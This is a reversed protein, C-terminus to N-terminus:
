RLPVPRVRGPGIAARSRPLTMSRIAASFFLRPWPPAAFGAALDAAFAFGSATAFAPVLAGAFFGAAFLGDALVDGDGLRGGTRLRAYRM